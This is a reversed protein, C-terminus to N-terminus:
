EPLAKTIDVKDWDSEMITYECDCDHIRTWWPETHQVIAEQIKGCTPCKITEFHGGSM